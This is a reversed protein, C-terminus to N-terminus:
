NEKEHNRKYFITYIIGVLSIVMIILNILLRSSDGTKPSIVDGNPNKIVFSINLKKELNDIENGVNEDVKLKLKIEFEENKNLAKLITENTPNSTVLNEDEYVEVNVFDLIEDDKVEIYLTSGEKINTGKFLISEEATDGPMLEKFSDFLETNNTNIYSFKNTNGNYYLTKSNLFALTEWSFSFLVILLILLILIKTKRM